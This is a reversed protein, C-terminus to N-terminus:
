RLANAMGNVNVTCNSCPQPTTQAILDDIRKVDLTRHMSNLFSRYEFLALRPYPAGPVNKTTIIHIGELMMKEAGQNDGTKWLAFGIAMLVHGTPLSDSPYVLHALDMAQEANRLGEACENRECRAYTLSVLAAILSAKGPDGAATLKEQADAALNEAQKFKHHALALQALHVQSVGLAMVDGQKKREAFGRKLYPEADAWRDYALYFVGLNDLLTSYNKKAEPVDALLHLSRLYADEARLFDAREAYDSALRGWLYGIASAPVHDREALDIVHREQAIEETTAIPKTQQPQAHECISLVIFLTLARTWFRVCPNTRHCLPLMTM